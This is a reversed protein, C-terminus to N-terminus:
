APLRQFVSAPRTVTLPAQNVVVVDGVAVGMGLLVASEALATAASHQWRRCRSARLAGAAPWVGAQRQAWPRGRSASRSFGQERMLPTKTLPHHLTCRRRFESIEAPTSLVALGALGGGGGGGWAAPM